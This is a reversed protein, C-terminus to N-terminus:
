PETAEIQFGMEEVISKAKEIDFKGYVFALDNKLDVEVAKVGRVKGLGTEIRNVCNSCTMGKIQMSTSTPQSSATRRVWSKVYRNLDAGIFSAIMSLLIIASGISWWNRHDHDHSIAEAVQASLLWDFLYAALM